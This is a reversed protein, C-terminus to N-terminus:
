NMTFFAKLTIQGTMKLRQKYNSIKGKGKVGVSAKANTTELGDRPIKTPGPHWEMM